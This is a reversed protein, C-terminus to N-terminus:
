LTGLVVEFRETPRRCAQAKVFLWVCVVFNVNKCPLLPFVESDNTNRQRTSTGFCTAPDANTPMGIALWFEERQPRELNLTRKGV